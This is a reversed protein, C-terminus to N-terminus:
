ILTSLKFGLYIGLILGPAFLMATVDMREAFGLYFNGINCGIGVGAGLGALIGGFTGQALRRRNKPVRVRFNKGVAAGMGAGLFAALTLVVLPYIGLYPVMWPVTKMNVGFISLTWAGFTAYPATVGLLSKPTVAFIVVVIGALILGALRPDWARRPDLTWSTESEKSEKKKKPVFKNLYIGVLLFAGGTAFSYVDARVGILSYVSIPASYFHSLPIQLFEAWLLIGASFGVLEFIHTVYGEPIRFLMGSACTGALGVGVGFALGGLIVLWSTGLMIPRVGMYDSLLGTAIAASGISILIGNFLWPNRFMFLDRFASVFCFRGRELTLGLVLGIAAYVALLYDGSITLM